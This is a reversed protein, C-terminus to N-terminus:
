ADALAAILAAYLTEAEPRARQAEVSGADGSIAHLYDNLARAAGGLASFGFTESAGALSHVLRYAVELDEANWDGDILTRWALALAHRREPLSAAFDRRM